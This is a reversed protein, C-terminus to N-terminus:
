LVNTGLLVFDGLSEINDYQKVFAACYALYPLFATLVDTSNLFFFTFFDKRVGSMKSCHQSCGMYLLRFSSQFLM